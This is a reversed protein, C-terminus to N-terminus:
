QYPCYKRKTMSKRFFIDNLWTCSGMFRSVTTFLPSFTNRLNREIAAPPPHLNTLQLTAMPINNATSDVVMDGRFAARRLWITTSIDEYSHLWSVEDPFLGLGIYEPTCYGLRLFTAEELIRHHRM